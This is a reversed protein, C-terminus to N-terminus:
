DEFQINFQNEVLKTKRNLYDPLLCVRNGLEYTNHNEIFKEIKYYQANDSNKFKKRIDKRVYSMHHMIVESKSFIRYNNGLNLRRTREIRFPFDPYVANRNYENRVPHIFTVFLKQSPTVLFTPKKFYTEIPVMSYNFDGKEMIKKAYELQEAVYFEDVDASIHYTCGAERSAQLGINRLRLENEKHHLKLDPEYFILQDILKEAKLRELLPLLDPGSPNGFYSTTQYTVSIFDVQNRISKTAYELLEEGDFVM